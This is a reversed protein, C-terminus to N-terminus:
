TVLLRVAEGQEADVGGRAADDDVQGADVAPSRHPPVLADARHRALRQELGRLREGVGDVAVDVAARGLQAQLGPRPQRQDHRSKQSRAGPAISTAAMLVEKGRSLMRTRKAPSVWTPTVRLWLSSASCRGTSSRSAITASPMPPWAEPSTALRMATSVTTSYKLSVASSCTSVQGNLTSRRPPASMVRSTVAILSALTFIWSCACRSGAHLPIPVVMTDASKRSSPMMM